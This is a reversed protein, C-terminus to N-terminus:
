EKHVEPSVVVGRFSARPSRAARSWVFTWLGAVRYDGHHSHVGDVNAFLPLICNGNMPSPLALQATVRSCWHLVSRYKPTRHSFGPYLRRDAPTLAAPNRQAAAAGTLVLQAKFTALKSGPTRSRTFRCGPSHLVARPTERAEQTRRSLRRSVFRSATGPRGGKM